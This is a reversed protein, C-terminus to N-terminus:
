YVYNKRKLVKVINGAYDPNLRYKKNADLILVKNELCKKLVRALIAKDENYVLEIEELSLSEHRVISSCVFYVDDDMDLFSKLDLESPLLVEMTRFGNYKLSSLWLSIARSPNGNSQEWLLRFFRNQTYEIVERKREDFSTKSLIKDYSLFFKSRKHKSIILETLEEVSWTDLKVVEDFCQYSQLIKSIYSWSYNHFTACWFINDIDANIISALTKIADFGEYRSLFLNHCDDLYFIIKKDLNLKWFDILESLDNSTGGLHMKFVDLLESSKTIKDKIILHKVECNEINNFKSKAYSIFKSKGSGFPGYVAISHINGSDSIWNSIIKTCRDFEDQEVFFQDDATNLFYKTYDEPLAVDEHDAFVISATSKKIEALFIKATIKKYFDYKGLWEKVHNLAIACLIWVFIITSALPSLFSKFFPKTFNLLDRSSLRYFQGYIEKTWRNSCYIILLISAFICFSFYFEYIIAKGVVTNITHLIVSNIFVFKYIIQLSSNLKSQKQYTIKIVSENKFKSITYTTVILVLRYLVWYNIFWLIESLESITTKDIIRTIALIASFVLAFPISKNFLGFLYNLKWNRNGESIRRFLIEFITEIKRSINKFFFVFSALCIIISLLFGTEKFIWFYGSAGANLHDRFELIKSYFTATWRIPIIHLERGLDDFVENSYKQNQIKLAKSKQYLKSRLKGSSLLIKNYYLSDKEQAIDFNRVQEYIKSSIKEHLNELTDIKERTVEDSEIFDKYSSVKPINRNIVAGSINGFSDEVFSRWLKLVYDYDDNILSKSRTKSLRKDIADLKEIIAKYNDYRINFTEQWTNKSKDLEVETNQLHKLVQKFREPESISSENAFSVVGFANILLFL